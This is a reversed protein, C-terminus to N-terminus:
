AGDLEPYHRFIGDENFAQRRKSALYRAVPPHRAVREALAMARPFKGALTEMRRPFAYRLGEVTHFLGLDAYSLRGGVLYGAGSRNKEILKEYWGLYKPMRASRFGEARRKAEPKQDEYYLGSGVPHHVDHAEAVLDATTLAVSRAFQREAEQQPALDLKEGLYAAILGAQSVIIDGDRLFPPAFPIFPAAEGDLMANMAGMGGGEEASLQTMERYDAGATELVLRPYEGRGPIGPWYYLEFTM